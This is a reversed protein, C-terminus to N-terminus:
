LSKTTPPANKLSRSGRLIGDALVKLETCAYVDGGTCAGRLLSAGTELKEKALNKHGTTIDITGLGICGDGMKQNCSHEFFSRAAEMHGERREIEGLNACSRLMNKDCRDQLLAKAAVKDSHLWGWFGQQACGTDFKLDCSRKYFSGVKENQGM